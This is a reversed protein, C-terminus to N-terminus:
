PKQRCNNQEFRTHYEGRKDYTAVMMSPAGTSTVYSDSTSKSPMKKNGGGRGNNGGSIRCAWTGKWSDSPARVVMVALRPISGRARFPDLYVGTLVAQQTMVIALDGKAINEFM